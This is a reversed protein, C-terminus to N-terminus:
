DGGKEKEHQSVFMACCIIHDIHPLGSESDNKGGDMIAIAHRMLADMYREKLPTVHQWNDVEYKKAGYELVAIIGSLAGSLSKLLTYPRPKNSDYKRGIGDDRPTMKEYGVIDFDRESICTGDSEIRYTGNKYTFALGMMKDHILRVVDGRRNVVIDGEKYM